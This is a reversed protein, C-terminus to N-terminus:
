NISNRTILQNYQMIIKNSSSNSLVNFDTNNNYLFLPGLNINTSNLLELIQRYLSYNITSTGWETIWLPKTFNNWFSLIKIMNNIDNGPYAHIGYGDIYNIIENGDSTKLGNMFKYPDILCSKNSYVFCNAMGGTIIKTNVNYKKIISYLGQIIDAYKFKLTTLQSSSINLQDFTIDGNFCVWDIENLVEFADIFINANSLANLYQQIRYLFKSVNITSNDISGGSYGCLNTFNQNNNTISVSPDDLDTISADIVALIKMGQKKILNAVNIFTSISYAERIDTRIWLSGLNKITTVLLSMNSSDEWILNSHAIGLEPRLQVPQIIPNDIRIANTVQISLKFNNRSTWLGLPINIVNTSNANINITQLIEWLTDNVDIVDAEVILYVNFVSTTVNTFTANFSYMYKSNLKMGSVSFKIFNSRPLLYISKNLLYANLTNKLVNLQIDTVYTNMEWLDIININTIPLSNIQVITSQITSYACYSKSWSSDANCTAVQSQGSPCAKTVTNGVTATLNSWTGDAKCIIPFTALTQSTTTQTAPIWPQITTTQTAPIWPQITTTQTAPIWPQITTTQTAPIWPPITTTQTVPIWPQITTTQTAIAPTQTTPTKTAPTKTAPTKTTPSQTTPSQTTLTTLTQIKYVSLISTIIVCLAIVIILITEM